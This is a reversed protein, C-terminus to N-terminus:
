RRRRIRLILPLLLFPAWWGRAQGSAACGCGGDKAVDTASDGGTDPDLPPPLELLYHAAAYRGDIKFSDGTIEVSDGTPVGYPGLPSVGLIAPGPPFARKVTIYAEVPELLLPPGGIEILESGDASYVAGLQQDRAMATILVRQASALPKGDLATFLLSVFETEVHVEFDALQHTQDGAFGIIAQSSPSDVLVVRNVTDWHHQGTTSHIIGDADTIASWDARESAPLGDDVDVTIRGFAFVEGPVELTDEGGAPDWGGEESPQSLMDVGAFADDLSLRRAAVPTSEQLHGEHVARALAPFQGMYHPTESVYGSQSPWGGRLWAKSASFHYSADWGHLGMGYYAYLPAAEAKWWAPPLMTWETHLFPLDEVQWWGVAMLLSGPADLHSAQHVEGLGIYHSAEVMGGAYSHRDIAEMTTDTWLNAAHAAPGGAMWATSVIVGGFGTGRIQAHRVAYGDAQTEALFRIYDGMRATEELGSWPGDAAMEWAGYVEMVPNELSDGALLGDGWADALAADDAYQTQLWEMWLVQLRGQLNPKTGDYLNNLPSHWFVSDENRIELLALSPDDAYRLGTHPNTHDLLAEMWAWESAQLEEVFTVYGYASKGEGADSLEGYIESPIDDAETVVHPFFSSFTMYVGAEKLAAFWIDLKELADPDLTREGTVEDTQLTGIMGQVPHLRVMNIGFIRYMQAQQAALEATGPYVSGVGWFKAPTGDAFAFDAGVAQLPGHGGAPADVLDSLDFVSSGPTPPDGPAFAFWADAAPTAATLDPPVAGTPGWEFNVISLADIGGHTVGGYDEHEGVEFTVTHPGVDLDIDPMRVWGLFRVDIGPWNLNIVERAGHDTDVPLPTGGDVSMTMLIRYSSTRVWIDHPGAETTTFNYSATATGGGNSFHSLWAGAVSPDNDAGPSLLHTRVDSCCYWSHDNFTTSQPAEGEVVRGRKRHHIAVLAVPNGDM